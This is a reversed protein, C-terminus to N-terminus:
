HQHEEHFLHAMFKIKCIILILNIIIFNFLKNNNNIVVERREMKTARRRKLWWKKAEIIRRTTTTIPTTTTEEIVDNGDCWQWGGNGGQGGKGRSGENAKKTYILYGGEHHSVEDILEAMGEAGGAISCAVGKGKSEGGEGRPWRTNTTATKGVTEETEGPMGIDWRSQGVCQWRAM